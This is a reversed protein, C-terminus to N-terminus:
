EYCCTYLVGASGSCDYKDTRSGACRTPFAHSKSRRNSRKHLRPIRLGQPRLISPGNYRNRTTNKSSLVSTFVPPVRAYYPTYIYTHTSPLFALGNLLRCFAIIYELFIFFVYISCCLWCSFFFDISVKSGPCRVSFLYRYLIVIIIKPVM